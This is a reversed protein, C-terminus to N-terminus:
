QNKLWLYSTIIGGKNDFYFNTFDWRNNLAYFSIPRVLYIVPCQELIIQQFENWIKQAKVKDITFSGENYLYDIRAEWDTKPKQQLPHWLHLNGTSPWVNSGQTPFFNSGLGIMVSQWDYTSSLQEVIKQFDTTRINVTIGIKACEDVVISAIDSFTSSDSVISLDFEIKNNQADYLFGDEKQTMGIKNLLVLAQEPNYRYALSIDPSYFPNGEAFFSYKPEALGRYAQQIIRQRNLLCSMAQRFEKKTFWNYYKKNSNKPNQNFSWLPASLSGGGNFVTWNKQNQILEDLDEPRASYGEQKQEKFLLFQTNQDSVIQAIMKEPYPFATNNNDKRWYNPNRSFVLRQGPTYETLFWMGMSPIKKVDTAVNLLDQVGKVGGNKKAEAYLFKPGFTRNTALLPNADIRPFNFAFTKEDIKTITIRKTTGDEMEVFQSNYASSQFAPDGEIEDYWFIIDDSTVPIKKNSDYFSWYLNDRFTYTVTMTNDKNVTVKPIACLPVFEKKIYDYDVLYDHMNSLISMTTADREAILLNFSKPDSTMSTLWEGGVTGTKYEQGQWHKSITKGVFLNTGTSQIQQIEELTMEPIKVCSFITCIAITLFFVKLIKNIIFFYRLKQM